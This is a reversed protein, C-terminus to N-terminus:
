SNQSEGRRNKCVGLHQLPIGKLVILLNRTNTNDVLFLEDNMKINKIGLKDLVRFDQHTDMWYRKKYGSQYFDHIVCFSCTFPCSISNFTVGYSKDEMGWTQWNHARYKTMDLMNWCPHGLTIPDCPLKNIIVGRGLEKKLEEAAKTQQIHASPHNGTAIIYVMDETIEQPDAEMDVLRDAQYHNALLAMWLPPEIASLDKLKGYQNRKDNPKVLVTAMAFGKEEGMSM